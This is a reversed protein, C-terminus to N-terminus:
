STCSSDYGFSYRFFGFPWNRLHGTKDYYAESIKVSVGSQRMEKEFFLIQIDNHDCEQKSILEGLRNLFSESHTEIFYMPKVNNGGETVNNNSGASQLTDVLVDVLRAQLAPHLHLEPQEIAILKKMNIPRVWDEDMVQFSASNVRTTRKHRLNVIDWWIQTLYPLFESIGFGSDVLNSVIGDQEVFISTQGDKKEISIGYGFYKKMWKSFKILDADKLSEFFGSLNSGDPLVTFQNADSIIFRRKDVTRTPKYYLMGKVYKTFYQCVQNYATLANYIGCILEIQELAGTQDRVLNQYVKKVSPTKAMNKLKAITESNLVPNKLIKPIEHLLQEENVSDKTQTELIKLIPQYFLDRFGSKGIISYDNSYEKVLYIKSLIHNDHFWFSIDKFENPIKKGNFSVKELKGGSGSKIMLNLKQDPIDINSECRITRDNDKKVLISVKAMGTLDLFFDTNYEASNAVLLMPNHLYTYNKLGFQFKIGEDECGRKVATDFNGYDVQDGYWSIPGNSQNKISQQILPFARFLSSKGSHNRGVLITIPRLEVMPSDVIRLNKVGFFLELNDQTM